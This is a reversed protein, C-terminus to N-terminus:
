IDSCILIAKLDLWLAVEVQKLILGLTEKLLVLHCHLVESHGLVSVLSFLDCLGEWAFLLSKPFLKMRIKM